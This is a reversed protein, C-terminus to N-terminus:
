DQLALAEVLKAAIARYPESLPTDDVTIPRGSDAGKMIPMELPVAGFYHLGQKLAEQEVGGQGFIDHPKGCCPCIFVSMNEILGLIPVGTEHFLAIGKRADILAMDQPTSVILAGNLALRRTLTIQADGTGPPMDILLIDLTGWSVDRIFQTLAKDIMPGRWILAADPDVMTGISTLRVGYREFPVMKNDDNLAPTETLGFITPVSPGYIDADMLGVAHGLKALMVALNAATTSKGVGGKGSAIAVIKRVGPLVLQPSSAAQKEATRTILVRTVGHLKQLAAQVAADLAAVEADPAFGSNLTVYVTDGALSFGGYLPHRAFPQGDPTAVSELAATIRDHLDTM